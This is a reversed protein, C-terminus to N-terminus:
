TRNPTEKARTLRRQIGRRPHVVISTGSPHSGTLLRRWCNTLNSHLSRVSGDEPSRCRICNALSSFALQCLGLQPNAVPPLPARSSALMSVDNELELRLRGRSALMPEQLDPESSPRNGLVTATANPTLGLRRHPLALEARHQRLTGFAAESSACAWRPTPADLRDHGIQALKPWLQHKQTKVLKPWVSKLWVSM